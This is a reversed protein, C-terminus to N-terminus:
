INIFVGVCSYTYVSLDRIYGSYESTELLNVFTTIMMHFHDHGTKGVNKFNWRSPCHCRRM